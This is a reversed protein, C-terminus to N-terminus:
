LAGKELTATFGLGATEYIYIKGLQVSKDGDAGEVLIEIYCDNQYCEDNPSWLVYGGNKVDCTNGSFIVAESDSNLYCDAFYGANATLTVPYGPSAIELLIGLGSWDSMVPNYKTKISVIDSLETKAESKEEKIGLLRYQIALADGVTLGDGNMDGNLKGQETIHNGATGNLGYKNPNALAQMILVADAMDVQGDCNTDGAMIVNSESTTTTTITTTTSAATTTTPVEDDNGMNNEFFSLMWALAAQWQPTVSNCTWAEASDAYLQQDPVEGIKLGIGKVFSDSIGDPSGALGTPGGVMIGNPATPFRSDVENLWFSSSPKNTHYTGYGTVYSIGLGNRGFIYDLAYGAYEKYKVDGTAEYAYAMIVANNVISSNSGFEYTDWRDAPYTYEDLGFGCSVKRYPTDMANAYINDKVDNAAAAVFNDAAKGINVNILKRDQESIKDSLYLSLTGFDYTNTECFAKFSDEPYPMFIVDCSDPICETLSLDSNFSTLYDYYEKDGTTAFLECAAWYAEDSLNFDGLDHDYFDFCDIGLHSAFNKDRISRNTWEKEHRKVANWSAEAQKLCEAAFDPDKKEWLRAAQAACAIMDFTAAYTPPNVVRKLKEKDTILGLDVPNYSNTYRVGHYVMDAFDEGWISDKEPDVVMNLMFELEYRAEDLIDALNGNAAKYGNKYSLEYMNQLLWVANAGAIVNKSCNDDTYWGGAADKFIKKETIVNWDSSVYAEDKAHFAEHALKARNEESPESVIKKEDLDIDSHQLYFFNMADRFIDSYIKDGVTFEHSIYQKYVEGTYPDTYVNGEDDIVITYRGPKKVASFDLKHFYGLGAEDDMGVPKTGGKYVEEGKENLVRFDMAGKDSDTEYTAVKVSDPYYGVQNLRVDSRPIVYGLGEPCSWECVPDDSEECTLCEVVIDDFWIEDGSSANGQYHTGQAYDFAWEVGELDETPKFIGEFTQWENSLKVAAGSWEGGMHPGMHMDKTQGDLTFYVNGNRSDGIQSCLELGNRNSKAKFSVRYEHGAKFNLNKHKFQLDWKEHDAGQPMYITIHFAGDDLDFAQKAPYAACTRWPLSKKEFTSEGIVSVARENMPEAASVTSSAVMALSMIVVALKSAKKHM